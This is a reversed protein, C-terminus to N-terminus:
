RMIGITNVNRYTMASVLEQRVQAALQSVDYDNALEEVNIDIDFTYDGSTSQSGLGGNVADRLIDKLQIFNQTDTANLVMEPRSKTGDLWAPGTYDALGGTKYKKYYYDSITHSKKFAKLNTYNPYESEIYGQIIDWGNTFKANLRSKRTDGKGWGGFDTGYVIAAAVGKKITTTVTKKSSSENTNAKTGTNTKTGTGSKTDGSTTVINGNRTPNEYNLESDTTAHTGDIVQLGQRANIAEQNATKLMEAQKEASYSNWNEGNYLVKYLEDEIDLKGDSKMAKDLLDRVSQTYVANKENWEIQSNMLEIQRSRQEAAKDNQDQLKDLAQDVLSDQYSLKEDELEEELQKIELANAGSTDLRLYALRREKKALEEETDENDRLQRTADINERISDVLNSAADNMADYLKEQEDVMNQDIQQLASAVRDEFDLYADILEQKTDELTQLIDYQADKADEMTDRYEELKSVFDEIKEGLEENNAKDVKQIAKWDIEVTLDKFNFTAYKQLSKNQKLYSKIEKKKANAIKDQYDYEKELSAVLDKYYNRTMAQTDKGRACLIQYRKELRERKKLEANIDELTNYQKDYPNEWETEKESSSSGGSSKSKNSKGADITTTSVGGGGSGSSTLTEVVPFFGEVPKPEEEWSQEEWESEGTFPNDYIKTKKTHITPVLRTDKVYTLKASFGMAQVASQIETATMNAALAMENFKNIFEQSGSWVESTDVGIDLKPIDIGEVWDYFNSVTTKAEKLSDGLNGTFRNADLIGSTTEVFDRSAAKQLDEIAETDGEAAKKMAQINKKNDWFSDSLDESTNLMKNMSKKLSDIAAIEDSTKGVLLGSDKDILSVWDDYTDTIEALGDNLKVNAIQTQLTQMAAQKEADTAGILAAKYKELDAAAVGAATAQALLANTEETSIQDVGEGPNTKSYEISTGGILEAPAENQMAIQRAEAQTTELAEKNAALNTYNATIEDILASLGEVGQAGLAKLSDIYNQTFGADVGKAEMGTLYDNLFKYMATADTDFGEDGLKVAGSDGNYSTDKMVGVVEGSAIKNEYDGGGLLDSTQQEIAAVITDVGQTYEYNGTESNYVFDTKEAVGQTTLTEYQEDTFSGTNNEGSKLDSLISSLSKVDEVLTTLDVKKTAKALSIMEKEFSDVDGETDEFNLGLEKFKTELTDSLSDISDMDTWDISAFVESIEEVSLGATELQEKLDHMIKSARVSGNYGSVKLVQELGDAVANLGSATMDSNGWHDRSVVDGMTALRAEADSFSDTAIEITNQVNAIFDEWSGYTAEVEEDTWGGGAESQLYEKLEEDTKGQLANVDAKTLSGGEESKFLNEATDSVKDGFSSVKKSFVEMCNAMEETADAAALSFKITEKSVTKEEGDANEYTIKGGDVTYEGASLNLVEQAYRDALETASGELNEEAQAQLDSMMDETAFNEAKTKEEGELGTSDLATNILSQYQVDRNADNTILSQGYEKLAKFNEENVAMALKNETIYDRLAETTLIQGEAILRAVEDTDEQNKLGTTPNGKLANGVKTNYDLESYTLDNQKEILNLQAGASAAQAKVIADSYDNLIQQFGEDDMDISLVGNNSEVFKALEPYKDILDLVQNNTEIVAQKWEQTGETLSELTKQQESLEDLSTQLNEYSSTLENVAAAANDAAESAAEFQGEPTLTKLYKYLAILGKIALYLAVIAGAAILTQAAASMNAVKEAIKAIINKNTAATNAETAATDAVTAATNGMTAIKNAISAVKAGVTATIKKYLVALSSQKAATNAGEALAEEGTALAAKAQEATYGKLAAQVATTTDVGNNLMISLAEVQDTTLHLSEGVEGLDQILQEAAFGDMSYGMLDGLSDQKSTKIIDNIKDTLEETISESVLRAKADKVMSGFLGSFASTAKPWESTMGEKFSSAFMKGMSTGEGGMKTISALLSGFLVKGTKLGALTLGLKAFAGGVSGLKETLTNLISILGTLLDVAAKVVANNAIGMTFQDWANKLKNLKTELSDLTKGYQEDAAGSANTASAVLEQTREYDSLM